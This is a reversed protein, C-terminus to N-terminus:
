FSYGVKLGFGLADSDRFQAGLTTNADGIEAYTVGGTIKINDMTYSAGVTLSRLGDKPGLNGTPQNHSGEYAVSIAGSWNENFKRGVGLTYTTVDEPYADLPGINFQRFATPYIEFVSWERWRISGFVLTDAAVGSQFDLTISQPVETEFITNYTMGGYFAGTERADFKHTIASQYTLAVRLAIDPREYAAGLIYGLDTETSTSMYYANPTYSSVITAASSRDSPMSLSVQGETRQVKVGGLVSWNDNFRYRALASIANSDINAWTGRLPYMGDGPYGTNAGVPQDFVFALDLQENLAYKFGFGVQGYTGMMDGSQLMGGGLSGSIDPSVNGLSFEAYNGQEWLIAYPSESRGIGGAQASAAMLLSVGVLATTTKLNVTM